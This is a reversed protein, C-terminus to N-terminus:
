SHIFLLVVAFHIQFVISFLKDLYNRINLDTNIMYNEEPEGNVQPNLTFCVWYIDIFIRISSINICNVYNVSDETSSNIRLTKM